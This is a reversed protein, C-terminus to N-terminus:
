NHLSYYSYALGVAVSNFNDKSKLSKESFKAEFIARLPRVLSTGGTMFITDIQQTDIQNEELFSDLYNSIKFLSGEISASFQDITIDEQISVDLENFNLTTKEETTLAIKQNEIEKFLMYGLNNAILTMLNKVKPDKGSFVYSKRIANQLKISNLFNMKEWSCINTFYFLPLDLWKDDFKEKVGRGFHPTGVEWMLNSDFDDGGVYIGGKSIMDETRNFKGVADPSLNMLTFDSTGGGFDAVLVLEKQEISQEYAYAAAIPELQFHYTKFGAIEVAKALREQACADKSPDKDFFVPRGVIATTITQNLFRDAKDKLESIILAVLEEAKYSQSLINAKTFKKNPLVKKISKLFRGDMRSDVYERIAEKGIYFTMERKNEQKKPFFILSPITFTKVIEHKSVDLIALASNTTGFDIGYIYQNM